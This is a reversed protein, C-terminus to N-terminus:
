QGPFTSESASEAIGFMALSRVDYYQASDPPPLEFVKGEPSSWVVRLQNISFKFTSQSELTARDVHNGLVILNHPRKQSIPPNHWYVYAADSVAGHIASSKACLAQLKVLVAYGSGDNYAAYKIMFVQSDKPFEYRDPATKYSSFAEELNETTVIASDELDYGKTFQWVVRLTRGSHMRFFAADFPKPAILYAADPVYRMLHNHQAGEIVNREALYPHRAQAIGIRNNNYNLGCVINGLIGLSAVVAWRCIRGRSRSLMYAWGIAMVVLMMLGFYSIYVTLYGVGLKYLETQYKVTLAILPAPLIWLGLGLLSLNGSVGFGERESSELFEKSVLIWLTAWLACVLFIDGPWGTLAYELPKPFYYSNHIAYTLPVAAYVQKLMTLLWATLSFGIKIGDYGVPYLWRLLLTISVNVLTLVFFPMVNLVVSRIKSKGLHTYAALAHLIWFTYSAEYVLMCVMYCSLSAVLRWVSGRRLYGIFFILSLLIFLVEVQTVFYYAFLPDNYGWRMQFFLPPLMMAMLSAPQSRTIVLLFYGFVIINSIVFAILVLKYLYRDMYFFVPIRYSLLPQWRGLKIWCVTDDWTVKLCSRDTLMGAGKVSSEYCEDDCLFASDLLPLLTAVNLIITLAALGIFAHRNSM